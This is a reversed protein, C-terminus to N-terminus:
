NPRLGLRTITQNPHWKAFPFLVTFLSPLFNFLCFAKLLALANRCDAKPCHGNKSCRGKSLASGAAAKSNTATLTEKERKEERERLSTMNTSYVKCLFNLLLVKVTFTVFSVSFLRQKFNFKSCSIKPGVYHIKSKKNM